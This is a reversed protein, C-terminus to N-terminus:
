MRNVDKRGQGAWGRPGMWEQKREETASTDKQRAMEIQSVYKSIRQREWWFAFVRLPVVSIRM